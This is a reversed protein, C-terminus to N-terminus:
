AFLAPRLDQYEHNRFFSYLVRYGKKVRGRILQRLKRDMDERSEFSYLRERSWGNVEGECLTFSYRAFLTTQRNHITIYRIRDEDSVRYLTIMMAVTTTDTGKDM